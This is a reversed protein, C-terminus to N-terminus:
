PRAVEDLGLSVAQKMDAKELNFRSNDAIDALSELNGTYSLKDLNVLYHHTHKILYRIVASDIFGAKGTVLFANGSTPHNNM